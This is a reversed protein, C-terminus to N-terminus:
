WTARAICWCPTVTPTPRRSRRRAGPGVVQQRVVRAAGHAVRPVEGADEGLPVKGGIPCPLGVARHGLRPREGELRRRLAPRDHQLVEHQPHARVDVEVQADHNGVHSAISRSAQRCQPEVEVEDVVHQGFFEVCRLGADVPDRREDPEGILQRGVRQLLRVVDGPVLELEQGVVVPYCAVGIVQARLLRDPLRDHYGRRRQVAGCEDLPGPCRGRLASIMPEFGIHPVLGSRM